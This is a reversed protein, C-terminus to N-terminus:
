DEKEEMAKYFEGASIEEAWDPLAFDCEAEAHVFLSDQCMFKREKVRGFVRLGYHWVVPRNLIEIGSDSLARIWAKGVASNKRFKRGGECIVKKTMQQKFNEEDRGAPVIILTDPFPAFRDSEIGYQAAFKEYLAAIDKCYQEYVQQDQYIKSDKKAIFFKEM